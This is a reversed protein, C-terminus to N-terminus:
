NEALEATEATFTMLPGHVAGRRDRELGTPTASGTQM